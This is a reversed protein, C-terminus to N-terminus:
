KHTWAKDTLDGLVTVLMTDGSGKSKLIDVEHQLDTNVMNTSIWDIVDRCKRLESLFSKFNGTTPMLETIGSISSMTNKFNSLTNYKMEAAAKMQEYKEDLVLEL